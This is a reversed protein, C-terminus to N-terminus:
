SGFMKERANLMGWMSDMHEEGESDSDRDAMPMFDADYYEESHTPSRPLGWVQGILQRFELLYCNDADGWPDRKENVEQTLHDEILTCLTCRLAAAMTGNPIRVLPGRMFRLLGRLLDRQRIGCQDWAATAYKDLFHEIHGPLM